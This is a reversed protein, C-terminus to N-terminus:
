TNHGRAMWVRKELRVGPQPSWVWTPAPYASWAVLHQYGQPYTVGAYFNASLAFTPSNSGDPALIELTEELKSLLVARGLPPNLAAVLLGHYRRTNAGALSGSAYGGIGNTVLWERRSSEDWDQLIESTILTM